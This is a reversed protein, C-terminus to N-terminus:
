GRGPTPKGQRHGSSVFCFAELSVALDPGSVDLRSVAVRGSSTQILCFPAQILRCEGCNTGSVKKERGMLGMSVWRVLYVSAGDM